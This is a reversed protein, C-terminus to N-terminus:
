SASASTAALTSRSSADLPFSRHLVEVPLQAADHPLVAAHAAGVLTEVLARFSTAPTCASNQSFTM